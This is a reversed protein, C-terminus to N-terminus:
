VCIDHGALVRLFLRNVDTRGTRLRRIFDQDAGVAACSNENRRYALVSRRTRDIHFNGSKRVNHLDHRRLHSEVIDIHLSYILEHCHRCTSCVSKSIIILYFSRESETTFQAQFIISIEVSPVLRKIRLIILLRILVLLFIEIEIDFIGIDSEIEHIHNRKIEHNGCLSDVHVAFYKGANGHCEATIHRCAGYLFRSSLCQGQVHLSRRLIHAPEVTDPHVQLSCRFIRLILTNAQVLILTDTQFIHFQPEQTIHIYFKLRHFDHFFRYYNNQRNESSDATGISLGETRSIKHFAIVESM